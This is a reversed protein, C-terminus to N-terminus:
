PTYSGRAVVIAGPCPKLVVTSSVTEWQSQEMLGGMGSSEAM